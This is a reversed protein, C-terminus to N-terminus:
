HWYPRYLYAFHIISGAIALASIGFLVTRKVANDTLYRAALVIIFSLFFGWKLRDFTYVIAHEFVAVNELLIFGAVGLLGIIVSEKQPIPRTTKFRSALSAVVLLASACIWTGYSQLLNKGWDGWGYYNYVIWIINM